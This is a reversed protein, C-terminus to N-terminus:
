ALAFEFAGCESRAVLDVIALLNNRTEQVSCMHCTKKLISTCKKQNLRFREVFKFDSSIIYVVTARTM